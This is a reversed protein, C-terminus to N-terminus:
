EELMASTKEDYNQLQARHHELSEYAAELEKELDQKEQSIVQSKSLEEVSEIVTTDVSSNHEETIQSYYKDILKITEGINEEDKDSQVSTHVNTVVTEDKNVDTVVVEENVNTVAVKDQKINTVVIEDEDSQNTLPITDMLQVEESVYVISEETIVILPKVMNEAEFGSCSNVMHLQYDEDENFQTHCFQCRVM